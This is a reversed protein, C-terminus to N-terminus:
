FGVFIFGDPLLMLWRGFRPLIQRHSPVNKASKVLTNTHINYVYLVTFFAFFRFGLLYSIALYLDLSVSFTPNHYLDLPFWCLLLSLFLISRSFYIPFISAFLTKLKPKPKNHAMYCIVTACGNWRINNWGLEIHMFELKFSFFTYLICMCVNASCCALHSHWESYAQAIKIKILIIKPEATFSNSIALPNTRKSTERYANPSKFTSSPRCSAFHLPSCM